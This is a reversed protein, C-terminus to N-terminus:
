EATRCDYKAPSDMNWPAQWDTRTGMEGAFGSAVARGRGVWRVDGGGKGRQQPPLSGRERVADEMTTVVITQPTKEEDSTPTYM